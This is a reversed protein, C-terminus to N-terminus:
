GQDETGQIYARGAGTLSETMPVSLAPWGILAVRVAPGDVEQAYAVPHREGCYQKWVAFRAMAETPEIRTLFVDTKKSHGWQLPGGM